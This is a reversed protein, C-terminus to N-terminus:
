VPKDAIEARLQSVDLLLLLHDPLRAFGTVYPSSDGEQPAIQAESISELDDVDDVVLGIPGHSTQAAIIPSDVQLPASTLGFRLRLDLVPMVLDRLTMMGLVEAPVGPLEALWMFSLVEIVDGVAIGYWQQGVRCRLYRRTSEPM